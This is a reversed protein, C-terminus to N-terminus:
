QSMLIQIQSEKFVRDREEKPADKYDKQIKKALKELREQDKIYNNRL